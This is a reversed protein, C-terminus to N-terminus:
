DRDTLLRQKTRVGTPRQIGPDPNDGCDAHLRRMIPTALAHGGLTKHATRIPRLSGLSMAAPRAFPAHLVVGMKRAVATAAHKLGLRKWLALGWRRVASEM